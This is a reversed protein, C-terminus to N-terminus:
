KPPPAMRSAKRWGKRRLTAYIRVNKGAEWEEQALNALKILAPYAAAIKVEMAGPDWDKSIYVPKDRGKEFTAYNRNVLPIKTSELLLEGQLLYVESHGPRASMWFIAEKTIFNGADTLIRISSHNKDAKIWVKMWGRNLSVEYISEDKDKVQAGSGIEGKFVGGGIWQISERQLVEFAIRGPLDLADGYDLWEGKKAERKHQGLGTVNFRDEQAQLNIIHNLFPPLILEDEPLIVEAARVPAFLFFAFFFLL